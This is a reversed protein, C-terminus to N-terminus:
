NFFQVELRHVLIFVVERLLLLVEKEECKYTEFLFDQLCNNLAQSIESAQANKGDNKKFRLPAM